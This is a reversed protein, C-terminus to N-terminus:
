RSSCSAGGLVCFRACHPHNLVVKGMSQSLLAGMEFGLDYPTLTCAVVSPRAAGKRKVVMRSTACMMSSPSVGLIKWCAQSIEVVDARADMEPFLVLRAPDHADMVINLEALLAAYGARAVEDTEGACQRGALAISFGNVALWQLGDIATRWAGAGREADHADARFHDLSVRLTLASGHSARLALLEREFRRMPKMANTLVLVKRDGELAARLMTVIEPNMFPEGGTFGIQRTPLALRVIEKLYEVVEEATLYILTDNRPSSEIYCGHCAINCLTGTNFWLTELGVMEVRARPGGDLTLERDRFKGAELPVFDQPQFLSVALVDM